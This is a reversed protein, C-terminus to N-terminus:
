GHAELSRDWLNPLLRNAYGSVFAHPEGTALAYTRRMLGGINGGFVHISVAAQDRSANAMVHIDGVIPSVAEIDGARGLHEGTLKMPVGAGEHRYEDFRATGRLIGILCWVTHDHVPSKQGPALVFSLVSCRGLPDCHLLYEQQHAHHPEAFAPPLWDDHAILRGLLQGGMRLMALEDSGHRQVLGTM